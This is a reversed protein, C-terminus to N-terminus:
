SVTPSIEGSGSPRAKAFALYGAVQGVLSAMLRRMTLDAAPESCAGRVGGKGTSALFAASDFLREHAFKHLIQEYRRGNSLASDTRDELLMVWGLWPRPRAGGFSGERFGTWMDSAMGITDEIRTNADSGGPPLRQSTVELGAVLHGEHVVLMDWEKTPRFFGPIERDSRVYISAEALGNERLLWDVLDCFGDMQRGGTVASRRGHDMGAKQKHAQAELTRWYHAVAKRLRDEFPPLVIPMQRRIM